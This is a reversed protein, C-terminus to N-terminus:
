LASVTDKLINAKFSGCKVGDGALRRTTNFGYLSTMTATVDRLQQQQQQQQEQCRLKNLLNDTVDDGGSTTTDHDCCDSSTMADGDPLPRFGQGAGSCVDPHTLTNYHQQQQQRSLSHHQQAHPCQYPSPPQQQHQAHACEYASECYIDSRKDGGGSM